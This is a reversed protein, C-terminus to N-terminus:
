VLLDAKEINFLKMWVDMKALFDKATLQDRESLLVARLQSNGGLRESAFGKLRGMDVLRRVTTESSHSRSVQENRM